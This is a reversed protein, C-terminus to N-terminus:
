AGAARTHLRPRRRAHRHPRWSSVLAFALLLEALDGGYYMLEAAGQREEASVPVAVFWGAYLLQAFTAHCTIAVGLVVLRAPVSPRHPAPDPGAIVWAFLCGAALFHVHLWLHVAGNRSALEYLPTFYLAGMGGLNLLLAVWPSALAGVPASRLVRSLLRASPVPLSRFLLTLPAGLVLFVPALMGLMLHQVMHERFDGDPYPVLPSFLAAGGLGSGVLFAAARWRGLPRRGRAAVCWLTMYAAAVLALLLALLLEGAGAHAPHHHVASAPSALALSIM